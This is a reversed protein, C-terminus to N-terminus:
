AGQEFAKVVEEAAKYEESGEEATDLVKTAKLYDDMSVEPRNEQDIKLRLAELTVHEQESLEGHEDVVKKLDDATLTKKDNLMAKLTDFSKGM